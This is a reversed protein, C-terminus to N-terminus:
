RGSLFKVRDVYSGRTAYSLPTGEVTLLKTGPYYTSLIQGYSQGARARGVAGAQCMGVGHGWGNGSIRFGEKTKSITFLTSRVTDVGFADRILRASLDFQGSETTLRINVARGSPGKDVVEVNEIGGLDVGREKFKARMAEAPIDLYWAFWKSHAGYPTGNPDTDVVPVLYPLGNGGFAERADATVGGSVTAYLAEIPKGAYTLIQNSTARIAENTAASEMDAGRYVHCRTTDDVDYGQKSFSGIKTLTYTRAAVAQAKLAEAPSAAGMECPVVGMLYSELPLENVLTLKGDVAFVYLWGRYRRSVTGATLKLTPSEASFYVASLRRSGLAVNSGDALLTLAEGGKWAAIRQNTAPDIAAYAQDSTVKATSHSGLSALGVRVVPIREAAAASTLLAAVLATLQRGDM